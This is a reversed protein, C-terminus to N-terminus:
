AEAVGEQGHDGNKTGDVAHIGFTPARSLDHTGDGPALPVRM